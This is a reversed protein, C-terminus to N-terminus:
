TSTPKRQHLVVKNGDPDSLMSIFCIPTEYPESTEVGRESLRRRMAAMDEVELALSGATGPTGVQEFTGVGFTTGAIEFESWFESVLEGPALGLDDRYFTVARAMDTVPYMLFAINKVSM